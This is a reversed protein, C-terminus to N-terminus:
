KQSKQVCICYETTLLVTIDITPALWAVKALYIHFAASFNRRRSNRAKPFSGWLLSKKSNIKCVEQNAFRLILMIGNSYPLSAEEVM